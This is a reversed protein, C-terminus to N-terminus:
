ADNFSFFMINTMKVCFNEYQQQEPQQKPILARLLTTENRNEANVSVKASWAELLFVVLPM